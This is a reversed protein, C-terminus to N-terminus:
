YIEMTKWVAGGQLVRGYMWRDVFCLGVVTSQQLDKEFSLRLVVLSKCGALAYIEDGSQMDHPGMGPLGQSTVFFKTQEANMCLEKHHFRGHKTSGARRDFTLDHHDHTENWAIWWDKIDQLRVANLPGRRRSLWHTQVNRDMFCARWFADYDFPNVFSQYLALWHTVLRRLGEPANSLPLTRKACAQVSSVHIARVTLVPDRRKPWETTPDHTTTGSANYLDWRDGDRESRNWPSSLDIAWSPLGDVGSRRHRRAKNLLTLDASQLYLLSSYQSFLESPTEPSPFMKSQSQWREPLLGFVGFWHDHIETAKRGQTANTVLVLPVGQGYKIAEALSRM